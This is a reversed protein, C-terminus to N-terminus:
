QENDSFFSDEACYKYAKPDIKECAEVKFLFGLKQLDHPSAM